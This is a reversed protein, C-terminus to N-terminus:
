KIFNYISLSTIPEGLLSWTWAHSPSAPSQCLLTPSHRLPPSNSFPRRLSSPSPRCLCPLPHPTTIEQATTAPPPNPPHPAILSPLPGQLNLIKFQKVQLFFFLLLIFYHFERAM